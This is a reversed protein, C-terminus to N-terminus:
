SSSLASSIIFIFYQTNQRKCNKTIKHYLEECKYDRLLNTIKGISSYAYNESVHFIKPHTEVGTDSEFITTETFQNIGCYYFDDLNTKGMFFVDIYNVTKPLIVNKLQPCDYLFGRGITKLHSNRSFNVSKLNPNQAFADFRIEIINSPIFVSEINTNGKFAYKGIITVPFGSFYNPIVVNKTQVKLASSKTNDDTGIKYTESEKTLVLYEHSM